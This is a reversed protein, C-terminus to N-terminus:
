VCPYKTGSANLRIRCTNRLMGMFSFYDIQGFHPKVKRFYIDLAQNNFRQKALKASECLPDAAGEFELFLNTLESLEQDSVIGSSDTPESM